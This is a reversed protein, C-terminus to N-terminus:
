TVEVAVFANEYATLIRISLRLIEDAKPGTRNCTLTASMEHKDTLLGEDSLRNILWAYTLQFRRVKARIMAALEMRELTTLPAVKGSPKWYPRPIDAM